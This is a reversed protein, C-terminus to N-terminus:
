MMAIFAAETDGQELSLQLVPIGASLFLESVAALDGCDKYIEAYSGEAILKYEYPEYKEALLGAARKIDAVVVKVHPRALSKLEEGRIEKVLKGERMIGYATAVKGLEGLLHSSIVITAGKENLARIIERVQIIGTPDLGNVPEDLFLLSPNNLMALAISLRQKMGLSFNKVKKGGCDGLGVFSLLEETRRRDNCGLALSYATLNQAASLKPYFAPQEILAGTARRAARLGAGDTAGGIEIEGHSPLAIGLIMRLLTTKGAGNKGILGYIEGRRVNLSVDSVREVGGYIKTLNHTRVAYEDGSSLIDKEM